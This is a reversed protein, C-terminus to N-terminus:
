LLKKRKLYYLILGVTVVCLAFLVPYAFPWNLEPM